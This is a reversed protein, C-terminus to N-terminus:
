NAEVFYLLTASLACLVTGGLAVDARQQWRRAGARDGDHERALIAATSAGFAIAGGAALGAALWTWVRPKTSERDRGLPLSQAYASTLVGPAIEVESRFPIQGPAIVDLRYRGAGLSLPDELPARGLLRGDMLILAGPRDVHVKLSGLEILRPKNATQRERAALEAMRAIRARVDAEDSADVRDRLYREYAAEALEYEALEEHSRGIDFWLEASPALEAALELERIATRYDHNDFARSGLAFHERAQSLGQAPSGTVAPAEARTAGPTGALLM